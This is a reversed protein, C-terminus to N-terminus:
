QVPITFRERDRGGAGSATLTYNLTRVPFWRICHKEISPLTWGVPELRTRSANRVGYCLTFPNGRKVFQDSLAVFLISPPPPKVRITFSATMRTGDFGDAALTYTTTRRPRVEFCRNQAPKLQDVPPDIRVERAQDVGYCVIAPDGAVLEGTNAYFQLIRVATGRSEAAQHPQGTRAARMMRM